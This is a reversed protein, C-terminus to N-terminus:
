FYNKLGDRTMVFLYIIHKILCNSPGTVWTFIKKELFIVTTIKLHFSM